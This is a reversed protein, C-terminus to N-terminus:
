AAVAGTAPIAPPLVVVFTTGAGVASQCTVRGGLLEVYRRVIYLGLGCGENRRESPAQRYLDFVYPLHAPDIGCGTDRVTIRVGGSAPDAAAHVDIGGRATFKRANGVLNMVVQRLKRRDTVLAPAGADVQWRETVEAPRRLLRDLGQLEEFFADLSLPAVDVQMVGAELRLVSLTDEVLDGLHLGGALMRECVERREAGTMVDGDDIGELLMRTYGLLINLPTRLEHSMMGLFETKLRDSEVLRTTLADREASLRERDLAQGIRRAFSALLQVDEDRFSRVRLDAVSVVGIVAGTADLIPAGCYVRVGAAVLARDEPFRTAVDTFVCAEGRRVVAACPTGALRREAPEARGADPAVSLIRLHAGDVVAVAAIPCELVATLAAVTHDALAAPDDGLVVALRYLEEFRRASKRLEQEIRLRDRVDRVIAQLVREDGTSVMAISVDVPIATGDTRVIAANVISVEARVRQELAFERLREATSCDVCDALRRGILRERPEAFLREARVSAEVVSGSAPDVLLIADSAGDFLARYRESSRRRDAGVRRAAANFADAVAVLGADVSGTVLQGDEGAALARSAAVIEGAARAQSESQLWALGSAVALSLLMLAVYANPTAHPSSAIEVALALSAVPPVIAALVRYRRAIVFTPGLTIGRQLAERRLARCGPRVVLEALILGASQYIACAILGGRAIVGFNPSGPGAVALELLECGVVVALSLVSTGVLDWVPLRAIADAARILDETSCPQPRGRPDLARDLARMGPHLAPLGAASGLGMVLLHLLTAVVLLAIFPLGFIWASGTSVFDGAVAIALAGYGAAPWGAASTALAVRCTYPIAPSARVRSQAVAM